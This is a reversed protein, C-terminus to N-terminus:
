GIREGWLVFSRVKGATYKYKVAADLISKVTKKLAVNVLTTITGQAKGKNKHEISAKVQSLEDLLASGARSFAGRDEEEAPPGELGPDM